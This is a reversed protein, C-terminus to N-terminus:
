FVFVITIIYLVMGRLNQIKLVDNCSTPTAWITIVIIITINILNYKFCIM